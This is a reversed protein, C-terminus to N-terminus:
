RVDDRDPSTPATRPTNVPANEPLTAPTPVPGPVPPTVAAAGSPKATPSVFTMRSLRRVADRLEGSLEVYSRAYALPSVRVVIDLPVPLAQLMPLVELRLLERVRRKLLNREVASHRHKPIVMGVRPLAHLSAM